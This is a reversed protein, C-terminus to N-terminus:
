DTTNVCIRRATLVPVHGARQADFIGARNVVKHIATVAPFGDEVIVQIVFAEEGGEGLSAGLGIPLHM